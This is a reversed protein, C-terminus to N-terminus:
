LSFGGRVREQNNIENGIMTSLTKFDKGNVQFTNHVVVEDSKSFELNAMHSVSSTLSKGADVGSFASNFELGYDTNFASDLAGMAENALNTASKVANKTSQEIALSFGDGFYQGLKMTEKSPSASRQANRVANLASRALNAAARVASGVFSSIGRVFGSGFNQGLGYTNTNASVANRAGGSMSRATASARGIYSSIGATFQSGVRTGGKGDTASGLTRSTNSKISSANRSIPSSHSSLGRNFMNGVSHGGKGDTTSGLTRATTNKTRDATAKALAGGRVLGNNFENGAKNGGGGDSTRSLISEIAGRVSETANKAKVGESMIASAFAKMANVGGSGDTTSGLETEVASSASVASSSADSLSTELGGKFLAGAAAGGSGDTTSGLATEVEEKGLGIAGMIKPLWNVFGVNFLSAANAGGGGDTTEGLTDEVEQSMEEVTQYLIGANQLIGEQTEKPIEAGFQTFDVEGTTEYMAQVMSLIEDVAYGSSNSIEQAYNEMATKAESTLDVQSEERMLAEIGEMVDGIKLKGSSLGEVLTGITYTGKSGLEIEAGEKVSDAFLNMVDDTSVLGSRMGVALNEIDQKGVQTLDDRELIEKVNSSIINAVETAGYEGKKLGEVFEKANVEGVTGTDVKIGKKVSIGLQKAIEEVKADGKTLGSTFEDVKKFGEQTLSEMGISTRLKNVLALGFDQMTYTGDAIGKQFEELKIKADGGLDVERIGNSLETSINKGILKSTESNEEGFAKYQSSFTKLTETIKLTNNIQEEWAKTAEEASKKAVKSAEGSDRIATTYQGWKTSGDGVIGLARKHSDALGMMNKANNGAKQSEEDLAKIYDMTASRSTEYEEALMSLIFAKDEDSNNSAKVLEVQEQYVKNLDSIYNGANRIGENAYERIEKASMEKVANEDLIKGFKAMEDVTSAISTGAVKDFMEATNAVSKLLEVNVKGNEDIINNMDKSLGSLGAQIKANVDSYNDIIMQKRAELAQKEKGHASKIREDIIALTEAKEQDLLVAIEKSMQTFAAVVKDKAQVAKDGSEMQLEDLATIAEEKFGVFKEGAERTAGETNRKLFHMASNYPGSLIADHIEKLGFGIAGLGALAAVVIPGAPGFALFSAGLLGLAGSVLTFEKAAQAFKRGAATINGEADFFSDTMKEVNNIIETIKGVIPSSSQAIANGINAWINSIGNSLMQMQSEFTEYRRASEEILANNNKWEENAMQQHKALDQSSGILRKMVDLQRIETIGLDRLTKDVNGGSDKVKELGEVLKVMAGYADEEFLTQVEKISMGMMKAWEKGKDTGRSIESSIKSMMTSM